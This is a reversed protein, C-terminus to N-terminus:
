HKFRTDFDKSAHIDIDVQISYWWTSLVFYMMNRKKRGFKVRFRESEFYKEDMSPSQHLLDGAIQSPFRSNRMYQATGENLEGGIKIM